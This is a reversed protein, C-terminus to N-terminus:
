LVVELVALRVQQQHEVLVVLVQLERMVVLRVSLEQQM